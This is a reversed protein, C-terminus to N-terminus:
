GRPRHSHSWIRRGIRVADVIMAEEAAGGTAQGPAGMITGLRERVLLVRM